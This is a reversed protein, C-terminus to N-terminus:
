RLVARLGRRLWEGLEPDDAIADEAVVVWTSMPREGDPAFPTVGPEGLARDYEDPATKVILGERWVIAFTHKGVLFGRGGFVNKQRIGREGLSHLLDAVRVALGQDYAMPASLPPHAVPCLKERRTGQDVTRRESGDAGSRAGPGKRSPAALRINVINLILGGSAPPEEKVPTM